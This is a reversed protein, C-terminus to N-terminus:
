PPEHCADLTAETVRRFLHADDTTALAEAYARRAEACRGQAILSEVLKRRCQDDFISDSTCAQYIVAADRSRGHKEWHDALDLLRVQSSGNLALSWLVQAETADKGREPLIAERVQLIFLPFVSIVVFFVMTFPSMSPSRRRRLLPSLSGLALRREYVGYGRNMWSTRNMWSSEWCATLNVQCALALAELAAVGAPVGAARDLRRIRRTERVAAYAHLLLCTLAIPGAAYLLPLLREVRGPKNEIAMSVTALLMCVVLSGYAQAIAASVWRWSLSQPRPAVDAASRGLVASLHAESLKNALADSIVLTPSFWHSYLRAYPSAFCWLVPSQVNWNRAGTAALQQWPEPALKALRAARLLRPGLGVYEILWGTGLALLLVGTFHYPSSRGVLWYGGTTLLVSVVHSPFLGLFVLGQRLGGALSFSPGLLAQEIRMWTLFVVGVTVVVYTGYLLPLPIRAVPSFMTVCFLLTSLPLTALVLLESRLQFAVRARETWPDTFLLDGLRKRTSALLWAGSALVPLLACALFWGVSVATVWLPLLPRVTALDAPSM